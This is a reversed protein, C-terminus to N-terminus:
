KVRPRKAPPESSTVSPLEGAHKAAELWTKCDDPSANPHDLQWEVVKQQVVALWPGGKTAGMVQM